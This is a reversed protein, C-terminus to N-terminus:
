FREPVPPLWDREKLYNLFFTKETFVVLNNTPDDNLIIGIEVAETSVNNELGFIFTINGLPTPEWTDDTGNFFVNEAKADLRLLDGASGFEPIKGIWQKGEQNSFFYGKGFQQNLQELLQEQNEM